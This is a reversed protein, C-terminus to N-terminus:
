LSLFSEQYVHEAGSHGGHHHCINAVGHRTVTYSLLLKIALNTMVYSMFSEFPVTGSVSYFM